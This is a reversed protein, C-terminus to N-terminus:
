NLSKLTFFTKLMEECNKGSCLSMPKGDEVVFLAKGATTNLTFNGSKISIRKDSVAEVTFNYKSLHEKLDETTKWQFDIIAVNKKALHKKLYDIDERETATIPASENWFKVVVYKKGPKYTNDSFLLYSDDGKAYARVAPSAKPSTYTGQAQSNNVFAISLLTFCFTLQRM